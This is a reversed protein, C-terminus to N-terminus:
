ASTSTGPQCTQLVALGHHEHSTVQILTRCHRLSTDDDPVACTPASAKTKLGDDLTGHCLEQILYLKYDQTVAQTAGAANGAGSGYAGGPTDSIVVSIFAADGQARLVAGCGFILPCSAFGNFGM